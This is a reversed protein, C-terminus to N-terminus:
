LFRVRDKHQVNKPVPVTTELSYCQTQQLKYAMLLSRNVYNIVGTIVSRLSHEGLKGEEKGLEM